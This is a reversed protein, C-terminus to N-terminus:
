IKRGNYYGHSRTPETFLRPTRFFLPQLLLPRLPTLVELVLNPKLAQGRDGLPNIAQPSGASIGLAHTTGKLVPSMSAMAKPRDPVLLSVPGFNPNSDSDVHSCLYNVGHQGISLSTM